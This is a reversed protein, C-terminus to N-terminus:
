KLYFISLTGPFRDDNELGPSIFQCLSFGTGHVQSLEHRFSYFYRLQYGKVPCTFRGTDTSYADGYNTVAQDFIIDEQAGYQAFASSYATFAISNMVGTSFM